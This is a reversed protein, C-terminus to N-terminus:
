PSDGAPPMRVTTVWRGTPTAASTVGQFKGAAMAVRFIAGASAAPHVTTRLGAASVGRVARATARIRASAPSGSPTTLTTGVVSAAVTTEVQSSSSRTRLIEKVPEVGTPRTRSLCAASLTTLEEISSPPLAGKM